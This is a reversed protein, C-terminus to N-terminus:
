GLTVKVINKECLRDAPLFNDELEEGNLTM